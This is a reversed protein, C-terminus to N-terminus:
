QSTILKSDLVCLAGRGQSPARLHETLVGWGPGGGAGAAGPRTSCSLQVRGSGSPSQRGVSQTLVPGGPLWLSAAPPFPSLHFRAVGGPAGVNQSLLSISPSARHAPATQLAALESRVSFPLALPPCPCVRPALRPGSEWLPSGLGAWGGTRQDSAPDM